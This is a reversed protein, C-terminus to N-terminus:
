NRRPRGSKLSRVHQHIAEQLSVLYGGLIQIWTISAERSHEHAVNDINKVFVLDGQISNLNEILAGHGGPRLIPKGNDSRLIVGDDALAITDTSSSQVSFGVQCSVGNM